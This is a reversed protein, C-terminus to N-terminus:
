EMTIKFCGGSINIVSTFASESFVEGVWIGASHLSEIKLIDWYILINDVSGGDSSGIGSGSV